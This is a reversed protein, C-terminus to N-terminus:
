YQWLNVSAQSYNSIYEISKYVLLAVDIDKGNDIQTNNIKSICNTFPAFNKFVVKKDDDYATASKNAMNAISIAGKVLLYADSYDCSSSKLM